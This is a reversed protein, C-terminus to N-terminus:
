AGMINFAEKFKIYKRKLFLRNEIDNYMFTFLEKSDNKSFSLEFANGQKKILSGGKINTRSKLEVWLEELFLRSGSTFLSHLAHGIKNNRAKRRFTCFSVCGDGDFYGRVFSAFCEEPMKPLRIKMSKRPMFGLNILDQFMEKSGIQIRYQKKSNPNKKFFESLLHKSDIEKRVNKILEKDISVFEIYRSGRPNIFMCGDAVFYGLVYAMELTWTKFFDENVLSVVQKKVRPKARPGKVSGVNLLNKNTFRHSDQSSVDFQHFWRTVTSRPISLREAIESHKLNDDWHWKKFLDTISSHWKKEIDKIRKSEEIKIM